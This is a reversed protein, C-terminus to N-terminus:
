ICCRDESGRVSPAVGALRSIFMSRNMLSFYPQDTFQKSTMDLVIVTLPLFHVSMLLDVALWDRAVLGGWGATAAEVLVEELEEEDEDEDM